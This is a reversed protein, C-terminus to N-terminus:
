SGLAGLRSPVGGQPRGPQAGLARQAGRSRRQRHLFPLPARQGGFLASPPPYHSSPPCCGPSGHAVHVPAAALYSCISCCPSPQALGVDQEWGQAELRLPACLQGARPKVGNRSTGSSPPCWSSSSCHYGTGWQGGHGRCGDWGRADCGGQVGWCPQLPLVPGLGQPWKAGCM